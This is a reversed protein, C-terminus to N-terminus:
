LPKKCEVNLSFPLMMVDNFGHNEAVSKPEFRQINIFGADTLIERLSEEMFVAQHRFPINNPDDRM